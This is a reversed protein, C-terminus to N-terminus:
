AALGFNSKSDGAHAACIRAREDELTLDHGHVRGARAGVRDSHAVPPDDRDSAPVLDPVGHPRPDGRYRATSGPKM